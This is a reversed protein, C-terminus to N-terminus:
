KGMVKGAPDIEHLLRRQEETPAETTEIRDAILIDMESPTLERFLYVQSLAEKEKM